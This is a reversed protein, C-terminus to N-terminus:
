AVIAKITAPIIEDVMIQYGDKSFCKLIKLAEELCEVSLEQEGNKPKTAYYRRQDRGPGCIAVGKMIGEKDIDFDVFKTYERSSIIM